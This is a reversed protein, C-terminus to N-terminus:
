ECLHAPLVCVTQRNRLTFVQGDEVCLGLGKLRHLWERRSLSRSRENRILGIVDNTFSPDTFQTQTM